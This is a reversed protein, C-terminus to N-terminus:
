KARRLREDLLQEVNLVSQLTPVHWEALDIKNKYATKYKEKWLKALVEIAQTRLQTNKGTVSRKIRAAFAPASEVGKTSAIFECTANDYEDEGPYWSDLTVKADCQDLFDFIETKVKLFREKYQAPTTTLYDPFLQNMDVTMKKTASVAKPGAEILATVENSFKQLQPALVEHLDGVTCVQTMEQEAKKRAEALVLKNLVGVEHGQAAAKVLQQFIKGFDGEAMEAIKKIGPYNPDAVPNMKKKYIKHAM